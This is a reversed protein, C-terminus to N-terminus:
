GNKIKDAIAARAIARVKQETVYIDDFMKAEKQGKPRRRTKTRSRLYEGAAALVKDKRVQQETEFLTRQKM